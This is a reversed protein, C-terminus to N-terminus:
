AQLLAPFRFFCNECLKINADRKCRMKKLEWCPKTNEISATCRSKVEEPCNAIKWCPAYGLLRKIGEISIKKNHILGRLCQLWQIDNESFYRHSNRKSPKILGHKEYLRLTQKTTGLLEAVINITYLPLNKKRSSFFAEKTKDETM